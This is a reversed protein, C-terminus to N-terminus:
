NLVYEWIFLVFVAIFISMQLGIVLVLDLSWPGGMDLRSQHIEFFPDEQCLTYRDILEVQSTGM